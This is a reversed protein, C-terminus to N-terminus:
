TNLHYKVMKAGRTSLKSFLIILEGPHCPKLHRGPTARVPDFSSLQDFNMLVKTYLTVASGNTCIFLITYPVSICLIKLHPFWCCSIHM